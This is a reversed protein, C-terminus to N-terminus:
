ELENDKRIVLEYFFALLVTVAIIIGAGPDSKLQGTQMDWFNDIQKGLSEIAIARDDFKVLSVTKRLLKVRTQLKRLKSIIQRRIGVIEDRSGRLAQQEWYRIKVRAARYVRNIYIDILKELELLDNTIEMIKVSDLGVGVDDVRYKDTIKIFKDVERSLDSLIERQHKLEYTRKA